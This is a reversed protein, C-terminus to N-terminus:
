IFLVYLLILRKYNSYSCTGLQNGTQLSFAHQANLSATGASQTRGESYGGTCSRTWFRRLVHIDWAASLSWFSSWQRWDIRTLSSHPPFGISSAAAWFRECIRGVSFTERRWTWHPCKVPHPIMTSLWGQPLTLKCYKPSPSICWSGISVSLATTLISQCWSWPHRKHTLLDPWGTLMLTRCLPPRLYQDM